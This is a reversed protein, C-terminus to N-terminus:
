GNYKDFNFALIKESIYLSRDFLLKVPRTGSKKDCNGDNLIKYSYISSNQLVINLNIPYFRTIM